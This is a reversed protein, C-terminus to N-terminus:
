GNVSRDADPDDDGVRPRGIPFDGDLSFEAIRGCAYCELVLETGHTLVSVNGFEDCEPCSLWERFDTPM